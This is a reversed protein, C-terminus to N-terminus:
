KAPRQILIVDRDDIAQKIERILQEGFDKNILPNGHIVVRVTHSPVPQSFAQAVFPLAPLACLFARRTTM